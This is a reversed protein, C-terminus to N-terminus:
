ETEQGCYPCVNNCDYIVDKEDKVHHITYDEGNGIRHAMALIMAQRMNIAYIEVMKGVCFHIQYYTYKM